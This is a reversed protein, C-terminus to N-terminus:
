PRNFPPGGEKLALHMTGLPLLEHGEDKAENQEVEENPCDTERRFRSTGDSPWSDRNGIVHDVSERRWVTTKTQGRLQVLSIV